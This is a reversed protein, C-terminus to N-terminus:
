YNFRNWSKQATKKAPNKKNKDEQGDGGISFGPGGDEGKDTLETWTKLLENVAASAKERSFKGDDDLCDARDILKVAKAVKDAKVHAALMVAELVANEAMARAEALEAAQASQGAGDTEPEDQKDLQAKEILEKVKARDTKETIGLEKMLKAVAKKSNKVSINNVEEDTYKKEPQTQENQEENGQGETTEVNKNEEAM